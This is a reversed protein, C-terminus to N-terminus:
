NLRWIQFNLAAAFCIWLLYPTLLFGARRDRRLFLLLTVAVLIVLLMLNILAVGIMQQGFFFWSWLGNVTLQVLYFGLPVVVPGDARQRWVLWASVGMSLYLLSWVPGFVWGPPTWSPKSIAQYWGGPESQSSIFAVGFTLVVWFLLGPLDNTKKGAVM